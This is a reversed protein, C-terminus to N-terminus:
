GFTDLLWKGIRLADNSSYDGAISIRLNGDDTVMFDGAYLQCRPRSEKHYSEFDAKANLFKIGLPESNKVFESAKSM